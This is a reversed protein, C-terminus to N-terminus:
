RIRHNRYEKSQEVLNDYRDKIEGYHPTYSYTDLFDKYGEITNIKIAKEYDAKETALKDYKANAPTVIGAASPDKRRNQIAAIEQYKESPYANKDTVEFFRGLASQLDPYYSQDQSVLQDLARIKIYLSKSTAGGSYMEAYKIFSVADKYQGNAYASESMAFSKRALSDNEQATARHNILISGFLLIYILHKM